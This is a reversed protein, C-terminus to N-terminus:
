SAAVGKASVDLGFHDYKEATQRTPAGPSSGPVRQNLTLPLSNDMDESTIGCARPRGLMGQMSGRGASGTLSSNYSKATTLVAVVGAVANAVDDHAGPAHDISDRGARSM